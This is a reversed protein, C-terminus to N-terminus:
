RSNTAGPRNATVAICSPVFSEVYGTIAPILHHRVNWATTITARWVRKYTRAHWATVAGTRALSGATAALATM